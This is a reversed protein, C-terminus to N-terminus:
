EKDYIVQGSALNVKNKRKKHHINLNKIYGLSMGHQGMSIYLIMANLNSQHIMILKISTQNCLLMM